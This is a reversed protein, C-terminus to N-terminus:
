RASGHRSCGWADHGAIPSIAFACRPRGIEPPCGPLIAIAPRPTGAVAGQDDQARVAHGRVAERVQRHLAVAAPTREAIRGAGDDGAGSPPRARDTGARRRSRHERGGDQHAAAAAGSRAGRLDGGRALLHTAFSHRLAHPTASDPLGLAGRLALNDAESGGSTFILEFVEGPAPPEWARVRGEWDAPFGVDPEACLDDVTTTPFAQLDVDRPDPADRGTGLLLHAPAAAEVVGRIAEPSMRLDLPVLVLYFATQGSFRDFTFGTIFSGITGGLASFIVILGTMASHMKQPLASLTASAILPVSLGAYTNLLADCDAAQALFEAPTKTQLATLEGLGALTQKEVELSEWVYDTLVVKALAM